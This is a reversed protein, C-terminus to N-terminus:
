ARRWDSVISDALKKYQEIYLMPDSLILPEQMKIYKDLTQKIQEKESSNLQRNLLQEFVLPINDSNSLIDNFSIEYHNKINTLEIPNPDALIVSVTENDLRTKPSLNPVTDNLSSFKGFEFLDYYFQYFIYKVFDKKKLEKPLEKGKLRIGYIKRFTIAIIGRHLLKRGEGEGPGLPLESDDSFLNKNIKLLTAILREKLTSSNIILIKSNPFILNYLPINKYDHSWTVYSKEPDYDSQLIQEKYYNVKEEITEFQLGSKTSSGSGLCLFDTGQKKRDNIANNHAHGSSAINVEDNSNVFSDLLSSILNGSSGPYFVVFIHPQNFINNM